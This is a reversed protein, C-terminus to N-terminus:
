SFGAQRDLSRLPRWIPRKGEARLRVWLDGDNRTRADDWNEYECLAVIESIKAHCDRCLGGPTPTGCLDCSHEYGEPLM